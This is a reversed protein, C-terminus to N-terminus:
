PRFVLRVRSRAWQACLMSANAVPIRIQRQQDNARNGDPLGDKTGALGFVPTMNTTPLGGVIRKLSTESLYRM